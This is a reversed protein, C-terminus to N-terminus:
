RQEAPGYPRPPLRRYRTPNAACPIAMRAEVSRDGQEVVAAVRDREARAGHEARVERHPTVHERLDASKWGVEALEAARQPRAFIMFAAPPYLLRAEARHVHRGDGNVM